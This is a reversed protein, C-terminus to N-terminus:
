DNADGDLAADHADGADAADTTSADAADAAADGAVHADSVVRGDAAADEGADFPVYDVPGPGYCAMLTLAVAGGTAAAVVGRVVRSRTTDAAENSTAAGCHPCVTSNAGLFGSCSSCSPLARM